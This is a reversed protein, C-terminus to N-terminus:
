LEFFVTENEGQLFINWQYRNSDISDAKAILTDRRHPAVSRLVPDDANASEDSFYIRTILRYLLGRMFVSVLIHPAQRALGEEQVAGPKVTRFHFQGTENMPVRGFGIFSDKLRETQPKNIYRGLHDAHWLELIADPVPAGDGDFVTGAIEILRGPTEATALDHRYLAELGIKFYPGVTQYSTVLHLVAEGPVETKKPETV